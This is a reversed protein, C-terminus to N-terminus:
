IATANAIPSLTRARPKAATESLESANAALREAHAAPGPAHAPPQFRGWSTSGRASRAPALRSRTGGCASVHPECASGTAAGAGADRDRRREPEDASQPLSPPQTAGPNTEPM